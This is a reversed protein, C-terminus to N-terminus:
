QDRERPSSQFFPPSRPAVHLGEHGEVGVAVAVGEQGPDPM